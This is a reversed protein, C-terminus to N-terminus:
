EQLDEDVDVSETDDDDLDCICYEVLQFCHSCITFEDVPEIVM